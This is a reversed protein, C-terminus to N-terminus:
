HMKKWLAAPKGQPDNRKESCPLREYSRKLSVSAAPPPTPSGLFFPNKPVESHLSFRSVGCPLGAADFLAVDSRM